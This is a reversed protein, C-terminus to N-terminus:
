DLDLLESEKKLFCAEIAHAVLEPTADGVVGKEIAVELSGHM